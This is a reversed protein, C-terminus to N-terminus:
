EADFPEPGHVMLPIPVNELSKLITTAFRGAEEDDDANYDITIIYVNM